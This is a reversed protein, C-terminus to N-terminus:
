MSTPSWFNMERIESPKTARFVSTIPSPREQQRGLDASRAEYEVTERETEEPINHTSSSPSQTTERQIGLLSSLLWGSSPFFSSILM